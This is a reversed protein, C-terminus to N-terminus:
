KVYLWYKARWGEGPAITRFGAEERNAANPANTVWSQPEPCCYPQKGGNNWLTWYISKEDVEYYLRRGSPLHEVVAGRYPAGDLEMEQLMFAGEVAECDTAQIGEYPLAAFREERAMRRGTPLNKESLECQEGVAMRLRYDAGTGGMFPISLPTHFGVGVPMPRDSKNFFCVEQELGRNSLRYIMKCKFAHPFYRYFADNGANSYYRCEILVEDDNEEAKSVVFPQGKLIGHHFNHEKEITIPFQYVMGDNEFRGDAIRNPPFLLPLGFIQPRGRFTEVEDAAPTHLMDAGLRTNKLSILNAGVEPVLLATYDGKSFEVAKLGNWDISRIM